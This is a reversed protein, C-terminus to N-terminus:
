PTPKPFFLTVSTGQSPASAIDITGGFEGVVIDHVITLGLGTGQGIPKTTFLPDFIKSLNEPPIGMGKDTVRLEVGNARPGISLTIEGEEDSADIANTVLNTVVQALGGPSGVIEVPDIPHEFNLACNAKRSAHSLLLLSEEIIPVADFRQKEIQGINRTQTKIGRVFSAAREAATNALRISAKMEDAIERHDEATVEADGISSQYEDTLRGIEMLSARLSAIPTNMEHAIGATLRGLSAMKEAILSREQNERLAKYAERLERSRQKEETHLRTNQVAVAIQYAMTALVNVADPPFAETRDSQVDLAGITTNGILMPLVAESRTDPLVSVPLYLPDTAIDQAIRPERHAMSFGIMSHDGVELRVVGISQKLPAACSIARLTAWAEDEEILFVNVCYYGFKERILDAVCRLISGVDLLATVTSAVDLATQLRASQLRLTEEVRKQDTINRSVGVIGIIDGRSDRFPVKSTLVWTTRGDKNVSCEERNLLSEGTEVIRRDNAFYKEALPREFFDFDTKGLLDESSRAGNIATHARNSLLFRSEKDKIYIYDPIQDILVRLLTREEELDQEAAKQAEFLRANEIANAIQDAM